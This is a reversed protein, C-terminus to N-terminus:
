RKNKFRWGAFRFAFKLHRVITPIRGYYYSMIRFRERLSAKRNATTMGESLYDIVVDNVYVNRRSHQLCRICWDYDASFRFRLDYPSTIRRNVCFAQHCVLMGNRFSDLTLIEPATLHRPGLYNGDGDVLNTQGYVIGPYDNAMIADAFLQLTDPSHFRDGANLFIVYDGKAQDLGKNMADYIGMDPSSEVVTKETATRRVVDLTGDSSVGDIVLHEYLGCTQGAVSRMTPEITSAANYCVTIVSFLPRPSHESM